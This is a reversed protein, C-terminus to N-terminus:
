FIYVIENPVFVNNLNITNIQINITHVTERFQSDKQM